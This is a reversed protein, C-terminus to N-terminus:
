CAEGLLGDEEVVVTSEGEDDEGRDGLMGLEGVTDRLAFFDRDKLLKFSLLRFDAATLELSAGGGGGTSRPDSSANGVGFRSCSPVTALLAPSSLKFDASPIRNSPLTTLRGVAGEVAGLWAGSTTTCSAVGDEGGGMLGISACTACASGVVGTLLEASTVKAPSPLLFCLKTEVASTSTM